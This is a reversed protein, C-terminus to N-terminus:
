ESFGAGRQDYIVIDRQLSFASGRTIGESYLRVGGAGGPGGHLFVLPVAGTPERARFVEVALRIPHADPRDRSEPVVLWGCERRVDGAWDGNVWCDTREFRPLRSQAALRPALPVVLVMVAVLHARAPVSRPGVRSTLASWCFTAM